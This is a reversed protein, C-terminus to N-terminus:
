GGLRSIIGLGRVIRLVGLGVTIVFDIPVDVDILVDVDVDVDGGVLFLFIGTPTGLISSLPPVFGDEKHREQLIRLVVVGIKKTVTVTVTVRVIDIDIAFGDLM